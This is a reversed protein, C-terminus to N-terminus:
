HIVHHVLADRANVLADRAEILADHANVLADRASVLAHTVLADRADGAYRGNVILM